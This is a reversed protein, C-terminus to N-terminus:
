NSQFFRLNTFEVIKSKEKEKPGRYHLTGITRFSMAHPILGVRIGNLAVNYDTEQVTIMVEFAGNNLNWSSPVKVPAIQQQNLFGGIRTKFVVAQMKSETFLATVSLPFDARPNKMRGSFLNVLIEGDVSKMQKANFRGSIVIQSGVNLSGPIEEHYRFTPKSVELYMGIPPRESKAATLAIGLSVSLLSAVFLQCKPDMNRPIYVNLM